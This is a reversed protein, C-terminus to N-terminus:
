TPTHKFVEPDLQHRSLLKYFDTRNRKAMRAAQSVNGGTMKLLQALYNRIFEDRADTFSPLATAFEGLSERVLEVSIVPTRCQSVHGNVTNELQRINGPWKASMLCEIAEPAYVMHTSQSSAIARELFHNALVPIDEPHSNLAPVELLSESLRYYLDERFLGEQILAKLDKNTTSLLRANVPVPESSGVPRIVNEEIVRLLETQLRMPMDGVEDLILTGDQAKEYLGQRSSPDNPFTDVACGFLEAELVNEAMSGCNMIALNATNRPSAKHMATALLEKGSGSEGSILVRSDGHAVSHAKDLLRHILPSRTVIDARWEPLETEPPRSVKIARSILDLLETKDIPKTIFGFAGSQTATVADPITGHATMILVPLGPWERQISQLLEIGNIIEMQLDTLVVDPRFSATADVAAKGNDVGEVEYGEALLRISLLRLLGPDDDVLLIRPANM